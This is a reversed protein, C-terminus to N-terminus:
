KSVESHWRGWSESTYRNEELRFIQADTDQIKYKEGAYKENKAFCIEPPPQVFTHLTLAVEAMVRLM